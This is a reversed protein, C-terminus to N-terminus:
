PPVCPACLKVIRAHVYVSVVVVLKELNRRSLSPLEDIHGYEDGIVCVATVIPIPSCTSKRVIANVGSRPLEGALLTISDLLSVFM